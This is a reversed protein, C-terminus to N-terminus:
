EDFSRGQFFESNRDLLRRFEEQDQKGDKAHPIFTGSAISKAKLSLGPLADQTM